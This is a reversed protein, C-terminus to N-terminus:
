CSASETVRSLMREKWIELKKDVIELLLDMYGWKIKDIFKQKEFFYDQDVYSMCHLFFLAGMIESFDSVIKNQFQERAFVVNQWDDPVEAEKFCTLDRELDIEYNGWFAEFEEKYKKYNAMIM